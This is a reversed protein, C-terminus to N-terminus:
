GRRGPAGAGGYVSACTGSLVTRLTNRGPFCGKCFALMLFVFEVVISQDAIHYIEAATLTVDAFVSGPAFITDIPPGSVHIRLRSRGLKNRQADLLRSECPSVAAANAFQARSNAETTTLFGDFFDAAQSREEARQAIIAHATM